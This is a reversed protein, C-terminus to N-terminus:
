QYIELASHDFIIKRNPGLLEFGTIAHGMAFIGLIFLVPVPGNYIHTKSAIMTGIAVLFALTIAYVPLRSVVRQKSLGIALILAGIFFPLLLPILFRVGVTQMFQMVRVVDKQINVSDDTMFWALLHFFADSCLGILGIGVLCFGLLTVKKMPFSLQTVLVLAVIYLVCTIIQVIVSTIVSPRSQKVINLIHVTDTTGQDPMLAWSVFFGIAAWIFLSGAFIKTKNM